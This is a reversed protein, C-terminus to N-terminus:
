QSAPVVASRLPQLATTATAAAPAALPQRRLQPAIARLLAPNLTAARALVPPVGAGVLAQLEASQQAQLMAAPDSRQGTALGSVGGALAPLFGRANAFNMLGAMLRDNIGPSPPAPLSPTPNGFLAAFPNAAPAANAPPAPPPRDTFRDTFGQDTFGQDTFGQSQGPNALLLTDLWGPQGGAVAASNFQTPDLIGM